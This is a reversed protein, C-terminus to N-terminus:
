LPVCCVSLFPLAMGSAGGAAARRASTSRAAGAARDGVPAPLITEYEVPRQHDALLYEPGFFANSTSCAASFIPRAANM